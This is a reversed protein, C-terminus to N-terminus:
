AAISHGNTWKIDISKERFITKIIRDITWSNKVLHVMGSLDAVDNKMFFDRILNAEESFGCDEIIDAVENPFLYALIQGLQIPKKGETFSKPSDTIIDKCSSKAFKKVQELTVMIHSINNM